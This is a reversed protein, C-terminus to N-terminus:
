SLLTGAASALASEMQALVGGYDAAADALAHSDAIVQAVKAARLQAYEASASGPATSGATFPSGVLIDEFSERQDLFATISEDGAQLSFMASGPEEALKARFRKLLATALTYAEEGPASLARAEELVDIAASRSGSQFLALGLTCRVYAYGPQLAIAQRCSEIAAEYSGAGYQALALGNHSYPNAPDLRIAERFQ